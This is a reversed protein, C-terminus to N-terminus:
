PFMGFRITRGFNIQEKGCRRGRLMWAIRRSIPNMEYVVSKTDSFKGTETTVVFWNRDSALFSERAYDDPAKIKLNRAEKGRLNRLDACRQPGLAGLVKDQYPFFSTFSSLLLTAATESSSTGLSRMLSKGASKKDKPFEISRLLQGTSDLLVVQSAKYNEDSGYILFNGSKFGSLGRPHFPLDLKLVGPLVMAILGAIHDRPEGKKEWSVIETGDELRTNHQETHSDGEILMYLNSESIFDGISKPEVVDTIKRAVFMIGAPDFKLVQIGNPSDTHRGSCLSKRRCRM